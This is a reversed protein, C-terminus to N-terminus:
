IDFPQTIARYAPKPTFINFVGRALLLQKTRDETWCVMDTWIVDNSRHVVWADCIINEFCPAPILYDISMHVTSVQGEEGSLVSDACFGGCHDALAATVGGHLCPTVYNGTFEPQYPISLTLRGPSLSLVSARLIERGFKTRKTVREQYDSHSLGFYRDNNSLEISNLRKTTFCTRKKEMQARTHKKM